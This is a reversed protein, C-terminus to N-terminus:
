QEPVVVFQWYGVVPAGEEPRELQRIELTYSPSQNFDPLFRLYHEDQVALAQPEGDEPRLAAFWGSEALEIDVDIAVQDGPTVELVKTERGEEFRCAGDTGPELAPDQGEFCFSLAEDYLHNGGSQVTVIPLPKECAALGALALVGCASAALRRRRPQM